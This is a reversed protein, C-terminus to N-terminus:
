EQRIITVKKYIKTISFLNYNKYGGIKIIRKKHQERDFFTEPTGIISFNAM